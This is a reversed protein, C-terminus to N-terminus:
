AQNTGEPTIFVNRLRCLVGMDLPAVGGLPCPRTPKHALGAKVKEAM